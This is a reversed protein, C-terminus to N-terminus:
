QEARHEALERRVDPAYVALIQVHIKKGTDQPGSATEKYTESKITAERFRPSTEMRRVLEIASEHHDTSVDLTFQLQGDEALTPHISNVQVQAPVIRELDAMVQTWSFAKRIFLNNLFQAQRATGSNEPLNLTAQAEQQEKQLEEIRHRQDSIQNQVVRNDRYEMFAKISLALAIAALGLLLPVWKVYFRRVDEYPKSALNVNFRM